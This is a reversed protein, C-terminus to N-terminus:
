EEGCKKRFEAENFEPYTYSFHHCLYAFVCDWQVAKAYEFSGEKCTEYGEPRSGNMAKAVLDIHKMNM